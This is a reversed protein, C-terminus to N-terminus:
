TLSFFELTAESRCTGRGSDGSYTAPISRFPHGFQVSYAASAGSHSVLDIELYGPTNV